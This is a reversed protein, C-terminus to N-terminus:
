YGTGKVVVRVTAVLLSVDTGFSLTRDYERDFDARKSFEVENRDSVQWPGTIGPRLSYYALGTYLVRQSPMMPRPGVLSMEGILVNWLQPLEDLSTKRLFRGIPTIRPDLKLKQTSDWELRAVPNKALYQELLRDANPVMTRLKLMRFNRGRLGVRESWYFPNSGDSATILALIAILPFVVVGATSVAAVDLFRKFFKRYMGARSSVVVLGAPSSPAGLEDSLNSTPLTM